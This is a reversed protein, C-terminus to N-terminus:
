NNLRILELWHSCVLSTVQPCQTEEEKQLAKSQLSVPPPPPSPPLPPVPSLIHAQPYSHNDSSVSEQCVPSAALQPPDPSPARSYLVVNICLFMLLLVSYQDLIYCTYRLLPVPSHYPRLRVQEADSEKESVRLPHITTAIPRPPRQSSAFGLVRELLAPTFDCHECTHVYIHSHLAGISSTHEQLAGTSSTHEQSCHEQVPHTNRCHEQVPHTSRFLM